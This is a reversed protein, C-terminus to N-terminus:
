RAVEASIAALAASVTAATGSWSPLTLRRLAAARRLRSRCLPDTLWSRLAGELAAADDVAVLLGPLSGDETRGLAEPVGGATSAIVPLGHALAETVVMGYTEARSALVLVDAEAYAKHVEERSCTGAFRVREVLEADVLQGRLGAVFANERDLPGVLTLRWELDRLGALASILVDHGKTATVAAVCLLEGSRETGPVPDAMDVGPEAVEFREAPLAPCRQLLWERTWRSTTLVAASVGMLSREHDSGFPMHVLPVLRLRRAQPVLVEAAASGVLGDVLLVGDDPVTGLMSRLRTHDAPDPEPWSAGCALEVVRWGLGTLGDRVRADYVNGGSPRTPDDLGDPVVFWVTGKGTGPTSM